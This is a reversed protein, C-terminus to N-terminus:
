DPSVVEPGVQTDSRKPGPWWVWMWKVGDEYAFMFRYQHAGLDLGTADYTYVVGDTFDDDAPDKTMDVPLDDDIVVWARDPAVGDPHTYTVSYTFTDAPTGPDPSVSGGTLEAVPLPQGRFNVHRQNPPVKVKHVPPVFRYGDLAAKVLYRGRDVVLEYRGNPGTTTSVTEPPSGDTPLPLKTAEIAVGEMPDNGVNRVIGKIRPPGVALFNVNRRSPPVRLKHVRPVFRYDTLEAKVLYFGRPLGEDDPGDLLYTGDAETVATDVLVGFKEATVTVGALPERGERIRGKVILPPATVTPGAITTPPDTDPFRIEEPPVPGGPGGPGPGAMTSGPVLFVFRFEHEGADLRTNRMFVVGDEYGASQEPAEYMRLRLLEDVVVFGALPAVGGGDTYTVSYTFKTAPTGETPDVAGNSLEACWSPAAGALLSVLVVPLVALPLLRLERAHSRL